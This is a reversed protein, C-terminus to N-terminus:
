NKKYIYITNKPFIASFNVNECLFTPFLKTSNFIQEIKASDFPFLRIVPKVPPNM